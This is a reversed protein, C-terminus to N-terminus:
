LLPESLLKRVCFNSMDFPSTPPPASLAACDGIAGAVITYSSKFTTSSVNLQSSLYCASGQLTWATQVFAM